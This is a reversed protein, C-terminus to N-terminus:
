KIELTKIIEEFTTRPLLGNTVPGDVYGGTIIKKEPLEFIYRIEETGSPFEWPKKNIFVKATNGDVIKDELREYTFWEQLEKNYTLSVKESVKTQILTSFDDTNYNYIVEVDSENYSEPVVSVYFFRPMGVKDDNKSPSALVSYNGSEEIKFDKPVKFIVGLNTKSYTQWDGTSIDQSTTPSLDPAGTVDITTELELTSSNKFSKAAIIGLTLIAFALFIYFKNM